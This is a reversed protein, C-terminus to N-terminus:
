KSNMYYFSDNPKAVGIADYFGMLADKMDQSDMYVIAGNLNVLASEAVPVKPLIGANVIMSAAEKKNELNGIYEISSKYEDLFSTTAKKHKNLFENRVIVCGMPLETSSIKDWENSVNLKVSYNKGNQKANLIAVTAKPEPLVAIDIEGKVMKAVVADHDAEINYSVNVSNQSFIHNLIPETTSTKVGYYITKGNLDAVSNIEVGERAIVYLSGLTNIAAVSLFDSKKNALNAAVNTPVCAFDIEGNLFAATAIEPSSFIKFEYKESDMGYDNIVKAIGMGTPGNMVGIKIKVDDKEFLSCSVFFTLTLTLTLLLALIKKM